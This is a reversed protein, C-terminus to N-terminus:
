WDFSLKSRGIVGSYIDGKAVGIRMKLESDYKSNLVELEAIMMVGMKVMNLAHDTDNGNLNGVCMYADGITKVKELGMEDAIRDFASFHKNMVFIVKEADITSSWKTFGVLDSFLISTNTFPKLKLREIVHFDRSINSRFDEIFLTPFINSLIDRSREDEMKRMDQEIELRKQSIFAHRFYREILFSELTGIITIVIFGGFYSILMILYKVHFYYGNISNEDLDPVNFAPITTALGSILMSICGATGILFAIRSRLMSLSSCAIVIIFGSSPSGSPAWYFYTYTGWLTGSTICFMWATLLVLIEFVKPRLQIWKIFFFPFLLVSFAFPLIDVLLSRRLLDPTISVDNFALDPILTSLWAIASIFLALKIRFSSQSYLM